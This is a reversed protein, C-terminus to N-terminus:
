KKLRKGRLFYVIGFVISLIAGVLSLTKATEVDTMINDCSVVIERGVLYSKIM